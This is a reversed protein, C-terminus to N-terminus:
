ARRRFTMITEHKTSVVGSKRKRERQKNADSYQLRDAKDSQTDRSYIYEFARSSIPKAGIQLHHPLPTCHGGERKRQSQLCKWMWKALSGPVAMTHLEILKLMRVKREKMEEMALQM